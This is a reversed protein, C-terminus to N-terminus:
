FESISDIKGCKPCHYIIIDVYYVNDDTYYSVDSKKTEVYKYGCTCKIINTM